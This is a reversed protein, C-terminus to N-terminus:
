VPALHIRLKTPLAQLVWRRGVHWFASLLLLASGITLATIAFVLSIVGYQKLLVSLAYLVYALASVMLARRDIALSALTIVAYLALVAVAAWWGIHGKPLGLAAFVPHVILPASLLHLWFAVDARRTQRPRDQADWWLAWVFIAVGTFFVVVIELGQGQLPGAMVGSVALASLAAAGAAVTIPVKFRQWHLWAAVAALASGLALNDPLVMVAGVFVLMLVISPLAMRRQRTFYEALGWAVAALAFPGLPPWVSRGIWAVSALLLACAIVVFVDNFGTILRFHEEDAVPMQRGVAVHARLAAVTADSIVGAQIASELDQDTYM